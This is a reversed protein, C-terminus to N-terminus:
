IVYIPASKGPLGAGTKEAMMVLIDITKIGTRLHDRKDYCDLPHEFSDERRCIM